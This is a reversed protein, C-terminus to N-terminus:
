ERRESEYRELRRRNRRRALAGAALASLLILGIGAWIPVGGDEKGDKDSSSEAPQTATREDQPTTQAAEPAVDRAATLRLTPAPESTGAPGLWRVIDGDDYVQLVRFTITAGERRPLGVLLRFRARREGTLERGRPAALTVRRLNGSPGSTTLKWGRLRLGEVATVGRPMQIVIRRTAADARENPVEFTLRAEDGAPARGPRVDVHASAASAPLLAAAVLVALRKM